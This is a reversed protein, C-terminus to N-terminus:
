IGPDHAPGLEQSLRVLARSWLKRASEVSRGLRRGIEDFTLRDYQHWVVVRRYHEPIRELASSLAAAQEERVAQCGPTVTVCPLPVGAARGSSADIPRELAIRRKRTGRYSGRLDAMHNRLVKGLWALLEARSRGRFSEINRCAALLTEQVLDSAAGKAALDADTEREAVIRLYDRCSELVRGMAERDGGRAGQLEGVIPDEAALSV